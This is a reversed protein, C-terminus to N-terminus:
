TSAYSSMSNKVYSFFSSVLNMFCLEYEVYTVEFLCDEDETVNAVIRAFVNTIHNKDRIIWTHVFRNEENESIYDKYEFQALQLNPYNNCCYEKM